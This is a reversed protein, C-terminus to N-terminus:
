SAASATTPASVSPPPTFGQLMDTLADTKGIVEDIDALLQEPQQARIEDSVLGFTDEMLEMQHNLNITIKGIQSVYEKRRGIVDIRKDLVANTELDDVNQSRQQNLNQVEHDYHEQIGSLAAAVWKEAPEAPPEDNWKVKSSQSKVFTSAGQAEAEERRSDMLVSRLYNRFESEKQAFELYKDLLYDLKRVIPRKTREDVDTLALGKRQQELQEFVRQLEPRVKPFAQAKQRARRKEIEADFRGALRKAYWSSRPVVALYALEAVVGGLLVLPNWFFAAVLFAAVGVANGPEKAAAATLSEKQQSVREEEKAQGSSASPLDAM